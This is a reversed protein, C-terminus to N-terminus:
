FLTLQEITKPLAYKRADTETEFPKWRYVDGYKHKETQPSRGFWAGLSKVFVVRNGNDPGFILRDEQKMGQGQAREDGRGSQGQSTWQINDTTM